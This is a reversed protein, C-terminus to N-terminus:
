ACFVNSVRVGYPFELEVGNQAVSLFASTAFSSSLLFAFAIFPVLGSVLNVFDSILFRNFHVREVDVVVVFGALCM